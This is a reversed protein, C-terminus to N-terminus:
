ARRRRPAADRAVMERWLSRVMEETPPRAGFYVARLEAQHEPSVRDGMASLFSEVSDHVSVHDKDAPVVRHKTWDLPRLGADHFWGPRLALLRVARDLLAAGPQREGSLIKSVHNQTIGLREAVQQQSAGESMMQRVLLRYRETALRESVWDDDCPSETRLYKVPSLVNTM